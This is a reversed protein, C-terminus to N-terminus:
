SEKDTYDKWDPYMAKFIRICTKIENQMFEDIQLKENIRMEGGAHNVVIEKNKTYVILTNERYRENDDYVSKCEIIPEFDDGVYKVNTIM